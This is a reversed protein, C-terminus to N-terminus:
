MLACMWRALSYKVLDAHRLYCAFRELPVSLDSGQIM